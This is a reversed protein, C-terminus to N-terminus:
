IYCDLLILFMILLSLIRGRYSLGRFKAIIAEHSRIKSFLVIEFYVHTYNHRLFNYILDNMKLIQVHHM